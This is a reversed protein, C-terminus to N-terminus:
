EGLPTLDPRVLSDVIIDIILFAGLALGIGVLVSTFIANAKSIKSTNGGSSMYLWGAYSFMVVAIPAVLLILFRIVGQVGELFKGITCPDDPTGKCPVLGQASAVVPITLILTAVGYVIITQKSIKQM